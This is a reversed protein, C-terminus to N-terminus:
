PLVLRTEDAAPVRMGLDNMAVTEVHSYSSFAGRELLLRGREAVLDDREQMVAQQERFVARMCAAYYSVALASAVCALALVLCTRVTSDRCCARLAILPSPAKM